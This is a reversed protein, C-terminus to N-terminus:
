RRTALPERRRGRLSLGALLLLALGLLSAGGGTAPLPRPGPAPRVPAPAVPEDLTGGVDVVQQFTPRNQWHIAPVGVVGVAVHRIDDDAVERRWADVDATGFEEELAAATESLSTWLRQACRDPDGNGCYTRSFPDTVDDGLVQRLDKHPHAYAHDQFASGVHGRLNGDSVELGLAEFPDIPQGAEFIADILRSSDPHEPTDGWWADMIAVAQAHEYEGDADHDRRHGLDDAAWTRLLEWMRGARPDLGAPPTAGMVRELLPMLEQARLDTTAALATIDVAEGLSVPGEALEERTRRELLSSRHIPGFGFADDSVRFGHAERNNWSILYGD